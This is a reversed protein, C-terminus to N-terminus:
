SAITLGNLFTLIAAHMTNRSLTGEGYPGAAVFGCLMALLANVVAETTLNPPRTTLDHRLYREVGVLFITFIGRSKVRLLQEEANKTSIPLQTRRFAQATDFLMIRLVPDHQAFDLYTLCLTILYEQPALNVEVERLHTELAAIINASVALIIANRNDFYEYLNAPSMHVIQAIARMSMRQIGEARIIIYAARVIERQTEKFRPRSGYMNM